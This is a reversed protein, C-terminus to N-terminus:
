FRFGHRLIFRSVKNVTSNVDEKSLENFPTLYNDIYFFYDIPDDNYIIPIDLFDAIKRVSRKAKWQFISNYGLSISKDGGQIIPAYFVEGRRPSEVRQITFRVFYPFQTSVCSDGICVNITKNTKDIKIKTKLAKGPQKALLYICYPIGALMLFMLPYAVFDNDIAAPFTFALLACVILFPIGFVAFLLAFWFGYRSLILIDGEQHAKVAKGKSRCDPQLKDM